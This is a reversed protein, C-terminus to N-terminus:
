LGKDVLWGVVAEVFQEPCEEQPVHGCDAFQIFDAGPIEGALRQSQELPVINDNAGSLVLTPLTLSTLKNVFSARSSVKTLEWLAKDWDNVRLVQRYNEWAVEPINEPNSWAARVFNEGPEGALQRMILPGLRNLQPTYLLPRVWAPSGGGEYIAADVLILGAVREPHELAFQAAVTGGASNGVLITRDVGFEDLLGLTLEVQGQPSYPNTGQWSGRLPRETLGFAPRDFAIVSGYDSLDDRVNRWTELNFAFGHLLVFTLDSPTSSLTEKYHLTVDNVDVFLSDSAALERETVTNQLPPVPVILPVVIIATLIALLLALSVKIRFPM